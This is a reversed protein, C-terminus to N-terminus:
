PSLPQRREDGMEEGPGEDWEEAWPYPQEPKSNKRIAPLWM